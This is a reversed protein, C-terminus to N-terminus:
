LSHLGARERVQGEIQSYEIEKEQWRGNGAMQSPLIMQQPPATPDLSVLFTSNRLSQTQVSQSKPHRQSLVSNARPSLSNPAVQQERSGGQHFIRV